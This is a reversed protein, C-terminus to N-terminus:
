SIINGLLSKKEKQPRIETMQKKRGLVANLQLFPVGINYYDKNSITTKLSM